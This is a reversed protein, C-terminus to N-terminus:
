DDSIGIEQFFRFLDDAAARKREREQGYNLISNREILYEGNERRFTLLGDDLLENVYGESVGLIQAAQPVTWEPLAPFLGPSQEDTTLLPPSPMITFSMNANRTKHFENETSQGIQVTENIWADLICIAQFILRIGKTVGM